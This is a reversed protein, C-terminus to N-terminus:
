PIVRVTGYRREHGCSRCRGIMADPGGFDTLVLEGGICPGYIGSHSGKWVVDGPVLQRCEGVQWYRQCHGCRMLGANGRIEDCIDGCEPCLRAILAGAEEGVRHPGEPGPRASGQGNLSPRLMPVMAKTVKAVKPAFWAADAGPGARCVLGAAPPKRNGTSTGTTATM